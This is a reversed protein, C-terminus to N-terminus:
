KSKKLEVSVNSLSLIDGNEGSNGNVSKLGLNNLQGAASLAKSWLSRKKSAGADAVADEETDTGTPILTLRETKEGPKSSPLPTSTDSTNPGNGASNTRKINDAQALQTNDASVSDKQLQRIISNKVKIKNKEKREAIMYENATDKNLQRIISNKIKVNQKDKTRHNEPSTIALANNESQHKNLQRIISNKVNSKGKEKTRSNQEPLRALNEINQKPTLTDTTTNNTKAQLNNQTQNPNGRQILIYLGAVLVLGAALGSVMRLSFLHVIRAERHKLSNKDPHTLNLDVALITNKYADIQARFREDSNIRKEVATKESTNLKNETYDFALAADGAMQYWNEKQDLQLSLDPTLITNKYANLAEALVPDNQLRHEFLQKNPPTLQGEIYEFALEDESFAENKKLSNKFEFVASEEMSPLTFFDADSLDIALEPHELAFRRLADVDSEKLRGEFYDLLFAEYNHLDIKM